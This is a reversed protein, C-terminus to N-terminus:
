NFDSKDEREVYVYGAPLREIYYVAGTGFFEFAVLLTESGLDNIADIM